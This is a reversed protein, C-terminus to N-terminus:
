RCRIAERRENERALRAGASGSSHFRHLSRGQRKSLRPGASTHRNPPATCPGLSSGHQWRRAWPGQDTPQWARPGTSAHVHTSLRSKIASEFIRITHPPGMVEIAPPKRIDATALHPQADLKCPQPVSKRLHGSDIKVVLGLEFGAVIAAITATNPPLVDSQLGSAFIHEVSLVMLAKTVNEARLQTGQKLVFRM